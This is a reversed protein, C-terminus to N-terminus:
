DPTLRELSGRRFEGGPPDSTTTNDFIVVYLDDDM